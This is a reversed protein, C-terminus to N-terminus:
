RELLMESLTHRGSETQRVNCHSPRVENTNYTFCNDWILNLDGEFEAKSRYKHAKINRLITSLDMPRKIVTATETCSTGRCIDVSWRLLRASRAQVSAESIGDVRGATM